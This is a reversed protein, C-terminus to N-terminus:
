GTAVYREHFVLRDFNYALNALTLKAQVCAICITCIFLGYPNQQHAFALVAHERTVCDGLALGEVLHQALHSLHQPISFLLVSV